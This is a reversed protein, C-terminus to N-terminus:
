LIALRIRLHKENEKVWKKEGANRFNMTGLGESKTLMQYALMAVRTQEIFEDVPSQPGPISERAFEVRETIWRWLPLQFWRRSWDTSSIGIEKIPPFLMSLQFKYGAKGNEDVLRKLEGKIIKKQLSYESLENREWNRQIVGM